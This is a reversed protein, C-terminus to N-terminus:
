AEEERREYEDCRDNKHRVESHAKCAGFEHWALTTAEKPGNLHLKKGTEEDYTYGYAMEAPSICETAGKFAPFKAMVAQGESLDWHECSGCTDRLVKLRRKPSPATSKGAFFARIVQLVLAAFACGAIVAIFVQETM